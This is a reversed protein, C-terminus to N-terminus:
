QKWRAFTITEYASKEGREYLLGAYGRKLSILNSYASPGPHLAKVLAWSKGGDRSVRVTMNERRTSAPNAFLLTKGHRILSAQCVPEILAEDLTAPEFTIGGDRSRAIARRNKGAYSRMNFLLSGDPLEAIASENMTDGVIGGVKWTAGHDDSYVVHSYRATPTRYHDCPIVLRGSKLQIGNGPGTAYWSWGRPKVMSTIEAPKAWSLGDDKSHTVWVRRSEKSTGALISKEPDSALNSTLLLWVIGTKRDLVPAPNGIVDPGFDAVVITSSWTKGQDVSRKLLLDINGTDSRNDRRGECFALLTGKKTSVIAPIRYSHYGGEGSRFVTVQPEEAALASMAIAVALFRFM